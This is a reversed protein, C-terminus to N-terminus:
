NGREGLIVLALEMVSPSPSKQLRAMGCPSDGLEYLVSATIPSGGTTSLNCFNWQCFTPQQCSSCPVYPVVSHRDCDVLCDEYASQLTALIGVDFTAVCPIGSRGITDNMESCSESGDGGCKYYENRVTVPGGSCPSASSICSCSGTTSGAVFVPGDCGRAEDSVMLGAIIGVALLIKM